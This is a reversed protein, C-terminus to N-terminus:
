SCKLQAPRSRIRVRTREFLERESVNFEEFLARRVRCRKGNYNTPNLTTQIAGTRDLLEDIRGRPILFFLLGSPGLKSYLHKFKSDPVTVLIYIDPRAKGGEGKLKTWRAKRGEKSKRVLTTARSMKVEATFHESITIDGRNVPHNIEGGVIRQVILEALRSTEDTGLVSILLEILTDKEFCRQCIHKQHSSSSSAALRQSQHLWYADAGLTRFRLLDALQPHFNPEFPM